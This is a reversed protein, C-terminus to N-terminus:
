PHATLDAEQVQYLAATSPAVVGSVLVLCVDNHAGCRGVPCLRCRAADGPKWQRLIGTVTRGADTHAAIQLGVPVPQIALIPASASGMPLPVKAQAGM